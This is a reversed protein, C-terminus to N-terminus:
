VKLIIYSSAFILEGMHTSSPPHDPYGSPHALAPPFGPQYVVQPTIVTLNSFHDSADM